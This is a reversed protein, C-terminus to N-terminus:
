GAHGSSRSLNVPWCPNFCFSLADYALVSRTYVRIKPRFDQTDRSSGLCAFSVWVVGLYENKIYLKPTM